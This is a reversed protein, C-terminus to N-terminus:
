ALGHVTVLQLLVLIVHNCLHNLSGIAVIRQVIFWLYLRLTKDSMVGFYACQMVKKEEPHVPVAYSKKEEPHVPV